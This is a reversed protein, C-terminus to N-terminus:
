ASAIRTACSSALTPARNSMKRLDLELAPPARPATAQLRQGISIRPLGLAIFVTTMPLRHPPPHTVLKGTFQWHQVSSQLEARELLQDFLRQEPLPQSPRRSLELTHHTPAKKSSPPSATAESAPNNTTIFHRALPAPACLSRSSESASGVIAALTQGVRM